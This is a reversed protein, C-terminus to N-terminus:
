WPTILFVGPEVVAEGPEVEAPQEGQTQVEVVFDPLQGLLGGEVQGAL